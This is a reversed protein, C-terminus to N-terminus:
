LITKIGTSFSVSQGREVGGFDLAFNVRIHILFEKLKDHILTYSTRIIFQFQKFDILVYFVCGLSSTWQAWIRSKCGLMRVRFPFGYIVSAVYDPKLYSVKSCSIWKKGKNLGIAPFNVAVLTIILASMEGDFSQSCLLPKWRVTLLGKRKGIFGARLWKPWWKIECIHFLEPPVWSKSSTRQFLLFVKWAQAWGSLM